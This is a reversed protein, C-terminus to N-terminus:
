KRKDFYTGDTQLTEYARNYNSTAQKGQQLKKFQEQFAEMIQEIKPQLTPEIAQIQEIKQLELPSWSQTKSEAKQQMLIQLTQITEGREQVLQLFQDVVEPENKEMDEDISGLLQKIKVTQTHLVEIINVRQQTM